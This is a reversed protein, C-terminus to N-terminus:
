NEGEKNVKGSCYECLDDLHIIDSGHSAYTNFTYQYVDHKGLKVKYYRYGDVYIYENTKTASMTEKTEECSSLTVMLLILGSAIIIIGLVIELTFFITKKM